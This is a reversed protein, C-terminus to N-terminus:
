FATVEIEHLDHTGQPEVEIYIDHRYESIVVVCDKGDMLEAQVIWDGDKYFDDDSLVGDCYLQASDGSYRFHVYGKDGDVKVRYFKLPWDPIHEYSEGDGGSSQLEYFFKRDLGPDEIEEWTVKALPIEREVETYSWAGNDYRWYAYSAWGAASIGDYKTETLDCGDGMYIGDSFVCIREAEERTLVIFTDGGLKFGNEKGAKATIPEMGEFKFVPENGRIEVFFYTNGWKTLPQALAYEAFHSGYRIRYPMIFSYNEAVNMGEAPIVNGDPMKFQVDEYGDKQYVHMFNNVYIYGNNEKNLRAAYRLHKLDYRDNKQDTLVTQMECLENSYANFFHNILKMRRYTPTTNGSCGIAATFDYSIIPYCRKAWPGHWLNLAQGNILLNRGGSFIYYGISNMGGGLKTLAM